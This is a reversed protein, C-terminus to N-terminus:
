DYKELALGELPRLQWTQKKHQFSPPFTSSLTSSYALDHLPLPLQLDQSLTHM